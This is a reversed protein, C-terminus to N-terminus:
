HFVKMAQLEGDLRTVMTKMDDFKGTINSMMTELKQNVTNDMKSSVQEMTDTMNSDNASRQTSSVTDPIGLAVGKPIWSLSDQAWLEAVYSCVSYILVICIM